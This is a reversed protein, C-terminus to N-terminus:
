FTWCTFLLKELKMRRRFTSSITRPRTRYQSYAILLINSSLLIVILINIKDQARIENFIFMGRMCVVRGGVGESPWRGGPPRTRCNSFGQWTAELTLTISSLYIPLPTSPLSRPRNKLYIGATAQLSQPFGCLFESYGIKTGFNSGPVERIRLLITLWEVVVNPSREVSNWLFTSIPESTSSLCPWASLFYQWLGVKKVKEISFLIFITLSQLPHTWYRTHLYEIINLDRFVLM